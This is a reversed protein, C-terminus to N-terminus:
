PEPLLSKVVSLLEEPHFPKQLFRTITETGPKIVNRDTFGSVIIVPLTPALLRLKEVLLDGTMGPMVVDIVALRVQQQHQRFQELATVGDGALLTEYGLDRLSSATLERVYMEDDVVLAKMLFTQTPKIPETAASATPSEPVPWFVELTTGRLPASEVRIAGRQARMIGLVAALGLGRGAFKTSFFPDFMRALVQPDVGSGTDSVALCVHWGAAPTLHFQWLSDGPLEVLSTKIVIEGDRDGIAEAANIVLNVLVQRVQGPEAVLTPLDESLEFRVNVAKSVPLGLL